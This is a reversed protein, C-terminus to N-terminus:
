RTRPGASCRASMSRTTSRRISTRTIASSPRCSCRSGISPLLAATRLAEDKTTLELLLPLSGPQALRVNWEDVIAKTKAEFAALQSDHGESEGHLSEAASIHADVGTAIPALRGTQCAPITIVVTLLALLRM